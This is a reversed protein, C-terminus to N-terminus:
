SKRLLLRPRLRRKTLPHLREEWEWQRERERRMLCVVVRVMISIISSSNVRRGNRLSRHTSMMDM